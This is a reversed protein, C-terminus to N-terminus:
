AHVVVGEVRAQSHPAETLRAASPYFHLAHLARATYSLRSVSTPRFSLASARHAEGQQLDYVRKVQDHSLVTEECTM